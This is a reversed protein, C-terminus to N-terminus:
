NAEVTKELDEIGHRSLVQRVYPNEWRSRTVEPDLEWAQRWYALSATVDGALAELVGLSCSVDASAGFSAARQLYYRARQLRPLPDFTLTSARYCYQGQQHWVNREFEPDIHLIEQLQELSLEQQKLDFLSDLVTVFGEAMIKYGELLPHCNDWILEFGPVSDPSASCLAAEADVVPVGNVRCVESLTRMLNSPAVLPNGDNDIAHQYYRHAAARNGLRLAAAGARHAALAFGPEMKLILEFQALAGPFDSRGFANEGAALLKRVSDANVARSLVSRNPAWDKMNRVVTCVIVRVGAEQLVRIARELEEGFRTAVQAREAASVVAEDFLEREKKRLNHRRDFRLFENNATCLLAVSRGVAPARRALEEADRRVVRATKGPGALNVVRVPHGEIKGGVLQRAIQGIDARPAYPHGLATSGGLIYLSFPNAPEREPARWHQWGSLAAVFAVVFLAGTLGWAISKDTAHRRLNMNGM